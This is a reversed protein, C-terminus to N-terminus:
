HGERRFVDADDPPELGAFSGDVEADGRRVVEAAESPVDARSSAEAGDFAPRRLSTLTTKTVLSSRLCPRVGTLSM